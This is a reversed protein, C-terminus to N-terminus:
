KINYYEKFWVIYNKIGEEISVRPNYGLMGKAKSIDAYTTPVDGKQIPLLDQKAKVGLVDEICKIFYSLEVVENNGLNFIEYPYAKDLASLVGAVIDSVYTFDRRMNGFNFVPIKEGKVMKSTFLYNAMDPRGWPGYVTFFRLGTCNLGYLKHYVHAILENYKKTAAYLSIPSSVNDDESFPIKKNGGYVSSSSSFIFDKVGNHRCLELLNLTGLCNAKEYVFPNELSYRVGAQAALHCIQDFKYKKFLKEIEKYDSIDSRVVVLNEHGEIQKIRDEKLKVDYYDSFNDVLIVEDGRDLLAKAVHFGIFGAGGTVLITKSM